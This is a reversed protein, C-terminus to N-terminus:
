WNEQGGRGGGVGEGGGLREAEGQRVEGDREKEWLVGDQSKKTERWLKLNSKYTEALSLYIGLRM